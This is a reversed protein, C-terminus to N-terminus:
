AKKACNKRKHSWERCRTCQQATEKPLLTKIVRMKGLISIVKPISNINQPRVAFIMNGEVIEEKKRDKVIIWRGWEPKMKRAMEFVEEADAISVDTLGDLMRIQWPIDQVM